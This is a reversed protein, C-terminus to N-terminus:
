WVEEHRECKRGLAVQHRPQKEICLRDSAPLSPLLEVLPDSFILLWRPVVGPTERARARGADFAEGVESFSSLM